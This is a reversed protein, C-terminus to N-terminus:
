PSRQEKLWLWAYWALLFPWAAVVVSRTDYDPAPGHRSELWVGFAAGTACYAVIVAFLLPFFVHPSV